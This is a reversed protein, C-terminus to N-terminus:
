QLASVSSKFLYKFEQLNNQHFAQFSQRVHTKLTQYHVDNSAINRLIPIVESLHKQYKIQSFIGYAGAISGELILPIGLSLSLPISGSLITSKYENSKTLPCVFHLTQLVELFEQSPLNFHYTILHAVGQREAEKQIFEETNGFPVTGGVIVIEIFSCDTQSLTNLLMEYDRCDRWVTGIVGVRIKGNHITNNVQRFTYIPLCVSIRPRTVLRQLSPHLFIPRFDKFRATIAKVDPSNIISPHKGHFVLILQQFRVNFNKIWWDFVARNQEGLGIYSNLIVCEAPHLYALDSIDHIHSPHIVQSFIGGLTGVTKNAFRQKPIFFEPQYGINKLYFDWFPFLELHFDNLEVVTIPQTDM